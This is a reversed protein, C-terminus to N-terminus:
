DQALAADSLKTTDFNVYVVQAPDTIEVHCNTQSNQTRDGEGDLWEYDGWSYDWGGDLRVKFDYSGVEEGSIVATYVGDGDPDTMAVDSSWGGCQAFGGTIGVTHENKVQESSIPSAASVSVAAVTAISGVLAASLAVALIKKTQM